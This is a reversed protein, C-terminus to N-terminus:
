QDKVKIRITQDNIRGQATEIRNTAFYIHGVVADPTFSAFMTARTPNMTEDDLVLAPDESIWTATLLTDGTPLWVSWDIEYDLRANPDQIFLPFSM